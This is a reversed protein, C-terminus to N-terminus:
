ARRSTSYEAYGGSASIGFVEEGVAFADARSAEVVGSVDNGLIKPLTTDVFGRRHKWDVPNVSAARVRILVEGEVPEPREVDEMRLVDPDGPEHMVMARM